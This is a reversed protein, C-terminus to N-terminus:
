PLSDSSSDELRERKMLGGIFSALAFTIFVGAVVALAISYNERLRADFLITGFGALFFFLAMSFM